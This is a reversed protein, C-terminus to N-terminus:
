KRKGFLSATLAAPIRRSNKVRRVTLSIRRGREWGDRWEDECLSIGVSCSSSSNSSDSESDEASISSSSAETGSLDDLTSPTIPVSDYGSSSSSSTSSPISPSSSSSAQFSNPLNLVLDDPVDRTREEIGHLRNQYVDGTFVWLSRRELVVSGERVRRKSPSAESESGNSDM